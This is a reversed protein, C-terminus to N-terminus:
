NIRANKVSEKPVKFPYKSCPTTANRQIKGTDHEHM